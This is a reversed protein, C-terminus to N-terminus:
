LTLFYLFAYNVVYISCSFTGTRIDTELIITSTKSMSSQGSLSSRLSEVSGGAKLKPKELSDTDPQPSQPSGPAGDPSSQFLCVYPSVCITLSLVDYSSFVFSINHLEPNLLCSPLCLKTLLNIYSSFCVFLFFVLFFIIPPSYSFVFPSLLQPMVPTEYNQHEFCTSM